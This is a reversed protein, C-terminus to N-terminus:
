RLAEFANDYNMFSLPFLEIDPRDALLSKRNNMQAVELM